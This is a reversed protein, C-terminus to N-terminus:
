LHYFHLHHAQSEFGPYCSPLHLHISQAIAADREIKPLAKVMEVIRGGM